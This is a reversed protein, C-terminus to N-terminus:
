TYAWSHRCLGNFNSVPKLAMDLGNQPIAM